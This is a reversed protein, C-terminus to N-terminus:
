ALQIDAPAHTAPGKRRLQHLTAVADARAGAGKSARVQSARKSSRRVALDIVEGQNRAAIRAAPKPAPALAVQTSRRRTRRPATGGSASKLSKVPVVLSTPKSVNIQSVKKSGPVLSTALRLVNLVLTRGIPIVAALAHKKEIVVSALGVKRTRQMLERLLDYAKSDQTGPELRYPKDYCSPPIVDGDVFGMIRISQVDATEGREARSASM